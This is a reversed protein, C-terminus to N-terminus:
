LCNHFFDRAMSNVKRLDAIKRDRAIEQPSKQQEPLPIHLREAQLKIAEVYSINEILSLFKFSDGGAHCGFCYFFGKSPAVSFSPTKEQHFPWCGWYNNGKKKIPVYRSVVSLIGSQSRVREVFEDWEGNAM